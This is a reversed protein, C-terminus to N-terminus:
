SAPSTISPSVCAKSVWTNRASRSVFSGAVGIPGRQSDPTAISKVASPPGVTIPSRTNEIVTNRSRCPM